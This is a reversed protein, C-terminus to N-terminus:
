WREQAAIRGVFPEGDLHRRYYETVQDGWKRWLERLEDPDMAHIGMGIGLVGLVRRPIGRAARGRKTPM